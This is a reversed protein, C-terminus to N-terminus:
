GSFTILGYNVILLIQNFKINCFNQSPTISLSGQRECIAYITTNFIFVTKENHKITKVNM